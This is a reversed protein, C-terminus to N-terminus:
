VRGRRHSTQKQASGKAKFDPRPNNTFGNKGDKQMSKAFGSKPRLGSINM